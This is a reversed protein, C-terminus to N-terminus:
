VLELIVMPAADGRRYGMKIIRTYGGPRDAYRPALDNFLKRVVREDYIYALAQRRAALDGRKALTVMKDAISKVEKARPETTQIRNDRFLSTVLNRLMARRHGTNRGLKRYAM